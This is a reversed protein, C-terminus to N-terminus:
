GSTVGVVRVAPSTQDLVVLDGDFLRAHAWALIWDLVHERLAVATENVFLKTFNPQPGKCSTPTRYLRHRSVTIQLVFLIINFERCNQSQCEVSPWPFLIRWLLCLGNHYQASHIVFAMTGHSQKRSSKSTSRTIRLDIYDKHPGHHRQLDLELGLRIELRHNFSVPCPPNSYPHCPYASSHFLYGAASSLNHRSTFLRYIRGTPGNSLPPQCSCLHLYNSTWFKPSISFMGGPAAPRNTPASQATMLPTISTASQTSTSGPTAMCQPFKCRSQHDCGLYEDRKFRCVLSVSTLKETLTQFFEPHSRQSLENCRLM